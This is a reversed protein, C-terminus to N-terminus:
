YMCKGVQDSSIRWLGEFELRRRSSWMIRANFLILFGLVASSIVSNSLRSRPGPSQGNWTFCTAVHNCFESPTRFINQSLVRGRLYGKSTVIGWDRERPIMATGSECKRSRENFHRTCSLLGIACFLDIGQVLRRIARDGGRECDGINGRREAKILFRKAEGLSSDHSAGIALRNM